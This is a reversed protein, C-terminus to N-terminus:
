GYSGGNEYGYRLDPSIALIKGGRGPSVLASDLRRPFRRSALARSCDQLCNRYLPDHVARNATSPRLLRRGMLGRLSISSRTGSPSSPACNPPWPSTSVRPLTPLAMFPEFAISPSGPTASPPRSDPM